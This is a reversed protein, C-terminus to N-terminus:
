TKCVLCEVYIYHDMARIEGSAKKDEKELEIVGLGETAANAFAKRHGISIPLCMLDPCDKLVELAEDNDAGRSDGQNIVALCLLGANVAKIESIMTKVLGLTWIDLSRPKFPVLFVDAIALASRQSSTDRGGVDIIVEDYDEGMKALQAYISKGSLQITTFNSEIGLSERQDAWDSASKQEDADVLLVKLGEASRLVALNTALTTKGSGGKIGGVVVIM